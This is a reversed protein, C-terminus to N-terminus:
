KNGGIRWVLSVGAQTPGWFNKTKDKEKYVRTDGAMNFSDYESRTYGLGINFDMSFTNSLRLQYGTTVGVGWLKGQYGTDSSFLSGVVGKYINYEGFNGSAGVYFRKADLLYWRVEPSVLWIKQVKGHSDGWWSRSGDVKIGVNRNIRWEVGLTPLLFADYLLNTRIAVCYRDRWPDAPAVVPEPRPEPKAEVFPEPQPEPRPEPKPQPKPEEAKAPIRLTVVVMDKHTIGDPATYATTYNKTIFHDEKLDKHLILESKVRNARIFALQRNRAESKMSGSYGDVYVPMTGGAIESCYQDILSYLRSLESDNGGWPVYFMDDGPVFRFQVTKESGSDQAYAGACLLASLLLTLLIKKM